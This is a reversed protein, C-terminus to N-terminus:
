NPAPLVESVCRLIWDVHGCPVVIKWRDNPGQSTSLDTYNFWCTLAHTIATGRNSLSQGNPLLKGNAMAGYPAFFGVSRLSSCLYEETDSPAEVTFNITGAAPIARGVDSFRSEFQEWSLNGFQATSIVFRTIRAFQQSSRANTVVFQSVNGITRVFDLQIASRRTLVYAAISSLWALSVLVCVYVRKRNSFFAPKV